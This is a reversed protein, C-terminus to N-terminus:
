GVTGGRANANKLAGAVVAPMTGSIADAIAKAYTKSDMGLRKYTDANADAISKALDTVSKADIHTANKIKGMTDSMEKIQGSLKDAEAKYTARVDASLNKNQSQTLDYNFDRKSSVMQNSLALVDAQGQDVTRTALWNAGKVGRASRLINGVTTNITKKQGAVDTMAAFDPAVQRYAAPNAELQSKMQNVYTKLFDGGKGAKLNTLFNAKITPDKIFGANQIFNVKDLVDKREATSFAGLESSNMTFHKGRQLALAVLSRYRNNNLLNRAKTIQKGRVSTAGVLEYMAKYPALPDKTNLTRQVGLRALQSDLQNIQKVQNSTLIGNKAAAYIAKRQNTLDTIKQQTQTQTLVAQTAKPLNPQSGGGFLGHWVSSLGKGIYPMAMPLLTSMILSGVPGGLMGLAGGALSALGKGAVSGAIKGIIGKEAAGAAAKEASEVAGKKAVEAAAKEAAKAAKEAKVAAGAVGATSASGAAGAAAKEASELEHFIGSQAAHTLRGEGTQLGKLSDAMEKARKASIKGGEGRIHAAVSSATLVKGEVHHSMLVRKEISSLSAAKLIDKEATRALGGVGGGGGGGLLGGLGGGGVMSGAMGIKEAFGITASGAAKLVVNLEGGYKLHDAGIKAMAKNEHILAENRFGGGRAYFAKGFATKGYKGSEPDFWRGTLKDRGLVLRGLPAYANKMFGAVKSTLAVGMALGLAMVIGKLVDTNKTLWHVLDGVAHMLKIFFPFLQKGIKIMDVNLGQVIKNFQAQPTNLARNLSKQYYAETNHSQINAVLDRFQGANNLLTALPTLQRAGGFAKIFLFTRIKQKEEDMRAKVVASQGTSDFGSKFDALFQDSFQNIGWTQLQAMAAANGTKGKYKPYNQVPNWKNIKSNLYDVGAALGKHRIISNVDGPKIGVMGFAKNGQESPNSLVSIASRVYTGAVSGTTGMSTLLDIWAMADGAKMGTSKAATLVGKGLGSILESQRIDGAGVVANILREAKRAGSKGQGIDPMNANLMASIVRASQESQAGAPVNGLVNLDSVAKTMELIEKKTAGLGQHWAATGSAVRYITQAIDDLHQGTQKAINMSGESLYPLDKAKVGAQTVAQTMLKNFDMYKKIGEYAIGGLGLAGWTATKLIAPTGASELKTLGRQFRTMSAAGAQMEMGAQIRGMAIRKETAAVLKEEETAAVATATAEKKKAETSAYLLENSRIVEANQKQTAVTLQALAEISKVMVAIDERMATIGLTIQETMQKQTLTTKKVTAATEATTAGVDATAAAMADLSESAVIVAEDLKEVAGTLSATEAKAQKADVVIDFSLQKDDVM